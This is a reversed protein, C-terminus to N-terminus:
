GVPPKGMLRRLMGIQGSHLMEHDAAFILSGFKTAFSSHPAETLEDLLGAYSPMEKLTQQLIQDLTELIETPQPHSERDASPETGKLFLKRYKGTLLARDETTRGRIRFLTLGYQSMAIHGVQWAIHTPYNEPMWFWDDDDLGDLLRLMYKRTFLIRRTVFELRDDLGAPLDYQHNFLEM